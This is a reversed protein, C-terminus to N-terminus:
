NQTQQKTQQKKNHKLMTQKKTKVVCLFCFHFCISSLLQDTQWVGVNQFVIPVLCADIENGCIIVKLYKRALHAPAGKQWPNPSPNQPPNSAVNHVLHAPNKCLIKPIHQPKVGRNCTYTHERQSCNYYRGFVSICFCFSACARCVYVCVCVCMCVRLGCACVVCVFVCVRLCAFVCCVCVRLVCVCM